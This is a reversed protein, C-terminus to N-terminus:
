SILKLFTDVVQPDFHKGSQQKIYELAEDKSWAKRYPRDSTIADWVDAIAFIRAAIPIQEARLRRPYGSGDWKEHHCYPIDIANRLYSIPALMNFALTPHQRMIEWEADTLNDPKLLIGDPVGLKGIDHLLGGRQIPVIDVERIGMARALSLTMTTVRQTHGETEKDRLDMARSWGEITADYAMILDRHTNRLSNFLEANDIAIASQGALAEFFGLQEANLNLPSRHYIELVGKIEGKAILPTGYYDVFGESVMHLSQARGAETRLIDIIHTTHRETVVRSAYGEDSKLHPRQITSSQFGRTAAYEMTQM